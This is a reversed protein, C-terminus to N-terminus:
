QASKLHQIQHRIRKRLSKKAGNNQSNFAVLKAQINSIGAENSNELYYYASALLCEGYATTDDVFHDCTQCRLAAIEGTALREQVEDVSSEYFIPSVSIGCEKRTSSEYYLRNKDDCTNPVEVDVPLKPAPGCAASRASNYIPSWSATGSCYYRYFFQQPFEVRRQEDTRNVAWEIPQDIENEVRNRLDNCHADRNYGGRRWGSWGDVSRSERYGSIGHNPHACLEYDHQQRLEAVTTTGCAEASTIQEYLPTSLDKCRQYTVIRWEGSCSSTLNDFNLKPDEFIVPPVERDFAMVGLYFTVIIGIAALIVQWWAATMDGIKM